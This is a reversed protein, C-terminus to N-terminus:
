TEIIVIRDIDAYDTLVTVKAEPMISALLKEIKAGQDYGIECFVKSGPNLHKSLATFFETYLDLGDQGSFLALHPEHQTLDPSMSEKDGEPVYPLNAVILDFKDGAWPDFLHGQRFEIGKAFGLKKANKKAVNLAEDSVDSAFFSAVDDDRGLLRSGTGRLGPNGGERSHRTLNEALSIIIAGSGTGIELIRGPNFGTRVHELVKEILLETEPRPILVNKDVALELGLFDITGTIYWVPENEARRDIYESYHQEQIKTLEYEPHAFLYTKDKGLVHSLLYEASAVAGEVKSATLKATAWKLAERTTM